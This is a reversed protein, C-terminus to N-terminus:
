EAEGKLSPNVADRLGNGFLNFCIMLLSVIIAPFILLYPSTMLESQNDSLTVGISSLNTLGLGLYAITAEYFIVSPIMLVARTIITGLGNPLIHKVILRADSAGLTRSALVYERSKFRYFQMRTTGAIGMWGTFCLAILLTWFNSGMHMIALTLVVISPIGGIIEIIREMVLDVTGGFYGSVSGWALGFFFCIVFSMIGILLSTRLGEFVFKLMDRGTKDTGMLYRPMKNYGMFKYQSVKASAVITGRALGNSNPTPYAFDDLTLEEVIPCKEKNLIKCTFTNTRIFLETGDVGLTERGSDDKFSMWGKSEYEVLKVIPFNNNTVVGFHADYTDYVFSCFYAKSLYIRRVGSCTWYKYEDESKRACNKAADTFSMDDLAAKTKENSLENEFAIGGILSCTNKGKGDAIMRVAFRANEFTTMGTETTIISAIDVKAEKKSEIASGINHAVAYDVLKVEKAEKLHTESNEGDYVFYLASEGLVYNSPTDLENNNERTRIKEVDYTDFVSLYLDGDITFNPIAKSSYNVVKGEDADQYYGFQVYGEKSLNGIDNSYQLDTFKKKSIASRQPFSEASPWWHEQKEADTKADPMESIDVAIKKYSITGDWFGAGADFLKPALYREEPHPHGTDSTDVLPIVVSLLLLGGLIFSAVVSSKNKAFRKVSDRFFTTPKTQFKQEHVTSDVQTLVFDDQTIEDDAVENISPTEELLEFDKDELM